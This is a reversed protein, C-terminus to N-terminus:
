SKGVSFTGCTNHRRQRRKLGAYALTMFFLTIGLLVLAHGGWDPAGGLVLFRRTDEAVYGIPVLYSLLLSEMNMSHRPWIAGSFLVSPMVYFLADTIAKEPRGTWSGIFLSFALVAAIYSTMLLLMPGWPGHAAIGFFALSFALCLSLSLLVVGLYVTGKALLYAGIHQRWPRDQRHVELVLSPGLAFITGIQVAHLILIVLFFDEYGGTPNGIVRSHLTLMAQADKQNWGAALRQQAAIRGDWTSVIQQVARTAVGGLVTNSNNVTLEITTLQGSAIHRSFDPPITIAATLGNRTMLEDADQGTGEMEHLCLDPSAAMDQVLQRGSAGRDLNYVVVPVATVANEYFLGGFLLTYVIPVFLIILGTRRHLSFLQEVEVLVYALYTYFFGSM